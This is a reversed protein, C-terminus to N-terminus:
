NQTFRPLYRSRKRNNHPRSESNGIQGDPLGVALGSTQLKSHPYSDIIRHYNPMHAQAIANYKDSNDGIGFGDLICLLTPKM